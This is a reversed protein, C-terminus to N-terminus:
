TWRGAGVGDTRKNFRYPHPAGRVPCGTRVALQASAAWAAEADIDCANVGSVWKRALAEAEDGSIRGARQAEILKERVIEWAAVIMSGAGVCPEMLSENWPEDGAVMTAMLLCVPFPTYYGGWARQKGTMYAACQFTEAVVDSTLRGYRGIMDVGHWLEVWRRLHRPEWAPQEPFLAAGHIRRLLELGWGFANALEDDSQGPQLCYGHPAGTALEIQRFLMVVLTHTVADCRFEGRREGGAIRQSVADIRDGHPSARRLPPEYAREPRAGVLAAAVKRTQRPRARKARVEDDLPGPDSPEVGVPHLGRHLGGGLPNGDATPAHDLEPRENATEKPAEQTAQELARLARRTRRGERFIM